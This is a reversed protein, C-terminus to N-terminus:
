IGLGFKYIEKLYDDRIDEHYTHIYSELSSSTEENYAGEHGLMYKIDNEDWNQEKEFYTSFRHRGFHSTISRYQNDDEFQYEPHFYDKWTSNVTTNSMQNHRTPSLFLWPKGNDPRVLLYEILTARLEDDLPLVRPVNSKNLQRDEPIYISNPRTAVQQHTGMESYHDTLEQHQINIESIKINCLESARLGLKLQTLIIARDRWHNIDSLLERLKSISVRPPDKPGDYSIDKGELRKAFPNFSDGHPFAPDNQWFKFIANLHRLKLKISGDNNERENRLYDVFDDVHDEAPCAPHRGQSQMFQKWLKWPTTYNRITNEPTNEEDVLEALAAEFPRLDHEVFTQEYKVLPDLDKGFADAIEQREENTM